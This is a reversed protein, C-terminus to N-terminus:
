PKNGEKLNLFPIISAGGPEVVYIEKAQPLVKELTELYLRRRTVDKTNKYANWTQMFKSADGQAENVRSLGYGESEKITKDAEGKAAPIVKNYAEMAENIMKEKEQEAENVENFSPQVEPPASVTQLKVTDIHIGSNYSDLVFQLKEQMEINIDIRRTTLAEAVSSDGIVLRMVAESVDRVTQRPDRINFLVKVPDKIRYQVIWSVDLVNLDGTLMLSEDYFSKNSFQTHVDAQVTRFGFEDKFVNKIKVKNLREINLPFKWHLGPQTTRDYKGFRRIIGVEDPEVQYFSTIIVGLIIIIGFIVPILRNLQEFGKRGQRLLEDPTDPIKFAM